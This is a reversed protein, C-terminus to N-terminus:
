TAQSTRNFVKVYVDLYTESRASNHTVEYYRGDPLSTSVLAKWMGLTYSFWVVYVEFDVSPDTKELAEDRIYDRVTNVAKTLPTTQDPKFTSM